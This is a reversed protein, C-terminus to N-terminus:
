RRDLRANRNISVCAFRFRFEGRFCTELVKQSPFYVIAGTSTSSSTVTLQCSNQQLRNKQEERTM